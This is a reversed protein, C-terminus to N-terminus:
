SLAAHRSKITGILVKLDDIDKKLDAPTPPPEDKASSPDHAEVIDHCRQTLRMVEDVESLPLDRVKKIRGVDIYDRFRQVTSNLVLDQVVREITARLLSYQRIMQGALEDTPTAPWPMKEFYKQRKELTDIRDAISKHAWPLGDRVHGYTGQSMELFCISPVSNAKNCEEQLQHLFVVDHTFVLVQRRKSEAVLRKAVKGRRQHDLSSVPDDLVIGASHGLLGLEALFSSLAIARQEGESLVSELRSATPLNLVLQHLTKGKAARERIVAKVHSIGLEKFEYNLADQLTRTVADSALTKGQTSISRTELGKYCAQLSKVKKMRELLQLIPQLSKGLNVRATFENLDKQLKSRTEADSAKQLARAERLFGAAIKRVSPVPDAEEAPPNAWDGTDLAKLMWARRRLIASRFLEIQQSLGIQIEDIERALAGDFGFDLVATAIKHKAAEVKQREIAANKAVDEKIFKAFRDLRAAGDHLDQQCLPCRSGDEIHPFEHGSYAVQISFKQAADFMTRWVSDGTGPLLTEDARFAAAAAREAELATEATSQMTKLKEIAADKCWLSCQHLRQSLQKMRETTARANRAKAVPDPAALAAVATAHRKEEEESLAAIKKLSEPNTASSLNAILVGVATNGNLHAFPSVDINLSNIEQELLLSVKPIVDQALGEVMGLGYPLYAVEKEETVYARACHTDFVAITALAEHSSEDSKWKISSPVGNVTVDFTAEPIAKAASANSADPLVPERQDRARCARKLVRSYGSKGSGNQGYIVTLGDQQFVLKQDGALKNVNTLNRIANLVVVDGAKAANPLHSADLPVAAPANPDAIGHHIKLLSYIAAYQNQPLERGHEFLSRVAHRQWLPLTETWELIKLLLSM